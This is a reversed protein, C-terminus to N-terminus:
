SIPRRRFGLTGLAGLAASIIAVVLVGTYSAEGGGVEPVHWFPSIGLAWDDLKFTPGLLTLGFSILVGLWAAPVVEPRNGIVLAAVMTVAWVAPITLLVQLISDGRELGTGSGVAISVIIGGALATLFASLILALGVPALFLRVRSLPTALLPEVRFALEEARLRTIMQIGPVAAIIGVLTLITKVFSRTIDEQTTAGAALITSVGSNGGVLDQVSTSLYGFVVGLVLFLLVWVLVTGRHIRWILGWPGRIRGTAPGGRPSIMGQGFDRRGHVACAIGVLVLALGLAALLPWWTNSEGPETQSIWALPNAWLTWEPADLTELVGRALFLVALVGVALDNAIHADSAIQACVAALSSFLWGSATFTGGLLMSVGGDAGCLATVAGAILGLLLSGIWALALPALLRAARGLVGSALLEAQGSDEQGRTTATVTVIAGLAALFGGLALGRWVTFGDVTTLDGATGFILSLAPNSGVASSLGMRDKETSFIWPYVLSSSASLATVIAIWPLFRRGDFALLARFLTWAGACSRIM